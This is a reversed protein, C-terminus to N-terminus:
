WYHRFYNHAAEEAKTTPPGHGPFVRADGPVRPNNIIKESIGHMLADFDGGPFDTRGVGGRFLVDGSFLVKLDPEFLCIGGPSHGPTELVELRHAGVDLVDGERLPKVPPHGFLKEVSPHYATPVGFKGALQLVGGTHDPHGHTLVVAVPELEREELASIVPAAVGPDIVVVEGAESDGFVYCNTQFFTLPIAHLIVFGQLPPQDFFRVLLNM